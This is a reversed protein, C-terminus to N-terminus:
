YSISVCVCMVFVCLCVSVRVQRGGLLIATQGFGESGEACECLCMLVWECLAM